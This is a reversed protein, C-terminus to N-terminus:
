PAQVGAVEYIEDVDLEVGMSPLPVKAGAEHRSHLWADGDRRWM